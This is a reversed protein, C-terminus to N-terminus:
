IRYNCASLPQFLNCKDKKVKPADGVFFFIGLVGYESALPLSSEMGIGRGPAM